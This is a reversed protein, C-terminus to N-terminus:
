LIGSRSILEKMQTVSRYGEVYAVPKGSKDVFVIKPIVLVSYKKVVEPNKYVDVNLFLLKGKYEEALQAMVANMERCPVCSDSGLKVVAALGQEAARQIDAETADSILWKSQTAPQQKAQRSCGGVVLGALVVATM